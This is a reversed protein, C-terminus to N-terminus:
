QDASPAASPSQPQDPTLTLALPRATAMGVLLGAGATVGPYSLV